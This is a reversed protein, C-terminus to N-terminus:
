NKIIKPEDSGCFKLKSNDEFTFVTTEKNWNQDSSTALENALNMKDSVSNTSIKLSKAITLNAMNRVKKIIIIELNKDSNTSLM